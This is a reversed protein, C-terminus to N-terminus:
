KQAKADNEKATEKNSSPSKVKPNLLSDYEQVQTPKLYSKRARLFAVEEETLKEVKNFIKNLREQFGKDM